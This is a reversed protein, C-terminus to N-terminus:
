KMVGNTKYVVANLIQFAGDPYLQADEYEMTNADLMKAKYTPRNGNELPFVLKISDTSLSGIHQENWYIKKNNKILLVPPPFIFALSDCTYRFKGFEFKDKAQKIDLDFECDFVTDDRSSRLTGTGYWIGSFNAVQAAEIGVGFFLFTIFLFKRM